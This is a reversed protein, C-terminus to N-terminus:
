FLPVPARLLRGKIRTLVTAIPNTVINTVASVIHKQISSRSATTLVGVPTGTRWINWWAVLSLPADTKRKNKSRYRIEAHATLEICVAFRKIQANARSSANGYLLCYTEGQCFCREIIDM